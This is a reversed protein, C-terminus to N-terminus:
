PPTRALNAYQLPWDALGQRVAEDRGWALFAEGLAEGADRGRFVVANDTTEVAHPDGMLYLMVASSLSCVDVARGGSASPLRGPENDYIDSSLFLVEAGPGDTVPLDPLSIPWLSAPSRTTVWLPIVREIPNRAVLGPLHLVLSAQEGRVRSLFGRSVFWGDNDRTLIEKPTFSARRQSSSVALVADPFWTEDCAAIALNSAATLTEHKPRTTIFWECRACLVSPHHQTCAPHHFRPPALLGALACEARIYTAQATRGQGDLWDAFALRPQDDAPNAAVAQRLLLEATM